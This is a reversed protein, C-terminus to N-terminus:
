IDSTENGGSKQVQHGFLLRRGCAASGASDIQTGIAIQPKAIPAKAVLCFAGM